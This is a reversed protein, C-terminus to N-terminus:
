NTYIYACSFQIIFWLIPFFKMLFVYTGFSLIFNM